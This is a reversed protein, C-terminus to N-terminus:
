CDSDDQGVSFQKITLEIIHDYDSHYEGLLNELSEFIETAGSCDTLDVEAAAVSNVIKSTLPIIDNMADIKSEIFDSLLLFIGHDVLFLCFEDPMDTTITHLYRIAEVREVINGQELIELLKVIVPDDDEVHYTTDLYRLIISALSSDTEIREILKLYFDTSNLTTIFNDSDPFDNHSILEFLKDLVSGPAFEAYYLFRQFLDESVEFEFGHEIMNKLIELGSSNMESNDSMIFDISLQFINQRIQDFGEDELNMNCIPIISEVVANLCTSEFDQDYDHDEPFNIVEMIHDLYGLEISKLININIVRKDFKILSNLTILALVAFQKDPNGFLFISHQIFEDCLFSSIDVDKQVLKHIVVLARFSLEPLEFQCFSRFIFELIQSLNKSLLSKGNPLFFYSDFFLYSLEEGNILGFINNTIEEDESICGYYQDDFKRKSIRSDRRSNDNM